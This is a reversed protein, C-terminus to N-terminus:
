RAFIPNNVNLFRMAELRDSDDIVTTNDRQFQLTLRDMGFKPWRPLGPGNPDLKHVFNILYGTMDWSLQLMAEDSEDPHGFWAPLDAGHQIGLRAQAGARPERYLYNWSDEGFDKPTERLFHRRPAQFLIDGVFSSLRKYNSSLGFTEPGTFFPSGVKPDPPYYALIPELLEEVAGYTFDFIDKVVELFEDQGEAIDPRIFRTGEDDVSGMVVPVKAYSGRTIRESPRVDLWARPGGEKEPEWEGELVPYYPFWANAPSDDTLVRTAAYLKDIPLARLCKLLEVNQPPGNERQVPSPCQAPGPLPHLTRAAADHPWPVPFSTPAGSLMFAGRFLGRDGSYLQHLGVSMAGASHGVLVVKDPDGGFEAIHDRVWELALLQDKFAVNLDLESAPRTPIHPATPHAGPEPPSATLGLAGLRYNISTFVFPQDLDIARDLLERPHYNPEDSSGGVFGGGHIWVMVPMLTANPRQMPSFVNVKLCDEHGLFEEHPGDSRDDRPKPRVCGADWKDMLVERGAARKSRDDLPEAVRFRRAGVPPKAYPIAKWAWFGDEEDEQYGRYKTGKVVAVPEVDVWHTRDRNGFPGGGPHWPNYRASYEELKSKVADYDPPRVGAYHSLKYLGVLVILVALVRRTPLRDLVAVADHLFRAARNAPRRQKRRAAAAAAPAPLSPDDYADDQDDDSPDSDDDEGRQRDRFATLPITAEDLSSDAATRTANRGADDPHDDDDGLVHHRPTSRTPPSAASASAPSTPSQASQVLTAIPRLITSVRM